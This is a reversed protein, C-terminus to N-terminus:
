IQNFIIGDVNFTLLISAELGSAFRSNRVDLMGFDIYGDGEESNKMWGVIQGMPKQPIDLSELVENLFVYGRSGLVHNWRNLQCQLLIQNLEPDPKWQGSMQDFLASYPGLNEPDIELGKFDKREIENVGRFLQEEREEGVAEQVRARYNNLATELAAYAAVLANNRNTLQRHSGVLCAIGVGSVLVAPGYLAAVKVASKVYTKAVEHGNDELLQERQKALQLDKEIDTLVDNAKLTARCALVTGSVVLAVGTGFLIHPSNKSIKLSARGATRTVAKPIYKTVNM